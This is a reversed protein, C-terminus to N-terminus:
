YASNKCTQAQNYLNNKASIAEPPSFMKRPSSPAKVLAAAMGPRTLLGRTCLPLQLYRVENGLPYPPIQWNDWIDKHTISFKMVNHFVWSSSLVCLVWVMHFPRSFNTAPLSSCKWWKLHSKNISAEEYFSVPAPEQQKIVQTEVSQRLINCRHFKM